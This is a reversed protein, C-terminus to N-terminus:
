HMKKAGGCLGRRNLTGHHHRGPREGAKVKQVEMDVDVIDTSTGVSCNVKTKLGGGIGCLKVKRYPSVPIVIQGSAIGRRIFDETVGEQAAVAKMEETIIGKKADEVISM